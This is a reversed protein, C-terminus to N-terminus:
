YAKLEKRGMEHEYVIPIGRLWAMHWKDTTLNDYPKARKSAAVKTLKSLPYKKMIAKRMSLSGGARRKLVDDIMINAVAMEVDESCPGISTVPSRSTICILEKYKSMFDYDKVGYFIEFMSHDRPCVMWPLCALFVLQLENEEALFYSAIEIMLQISGSSGTLMCRQPISKKAITYFESPKKVVYYMYGSHWKLVGGYPVDGIYYRELDCLEELPKQYKIQLHQFIAKNFNTRKYSLRSSGTSISNQPSTFLNWASNEGKEGRYREVKQRLLTLDDTPPENPHRKKCATKMKNILAKEFVPLFTYTHTQEHMYREWMIGNFRLGFMYICSLKVRQNGEKVIRKFFDEGNYPVYGSRQEIDNRFPYVDIPNIKMKSCIDEIGIICINLVNHIMSSLPPKNYITEFLDTYKNIDFTEDNIGTNLSSQQTALARDMEEITQKTTGIM